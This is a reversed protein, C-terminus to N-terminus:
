FGNAPVAVVLSRDTGPAECLRNRVGKEDRTISGLIVPSFVM